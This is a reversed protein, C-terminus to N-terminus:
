IGNFGNGCIPCCMDNECSKTVTREEGCQTCYCNVFDVEKTIPAGIPHDVDGGRDDNMNQIYMGYISGNVEGIRAVAEIAKANAEIARALAIIAESNSAVRDIRINCDNIEVM